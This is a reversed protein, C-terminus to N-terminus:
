GLRYDDPIAGTKVPKRSGCHDSIETQIAALYPGPAACIFEGPGFAAKKKAIETELECNDRGLDTLTAQPHDGLVVLTNGAWKYVRVGFYEKDDLAEVNAKNRAHIADIYGAEFAAGEDAAKEGFKEIDTRFTAYIKKLEGVAAEVMAKAVPQVDALEDDTPNSPDSVKNLLGAAGTAAATLESSGGSLSYAFWKENADAVEPVSAFRYVDGTLEAGWTDHAWRYFSSLSPYLALNNATAFQSWVAFIQMWNDDRVADEYTAPPDSTRLVAKQTEPLKEM